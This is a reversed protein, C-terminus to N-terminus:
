LISGALLLAELLDLSKVDFTRRCFSSSSSTHRILNDFSCQLLSIRTNLMINLFPQMQLKLKIQIFSLLDLTLEKKRVLKLMFNKMYDECKRNYM